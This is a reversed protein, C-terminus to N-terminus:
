TGKNIQIACQFILNEIQISSMLQSLRFLHKYFLKQKYIFNNNPKTSQIFNTFSKNTEMIKKFLLTLILNKQKNNFYNM